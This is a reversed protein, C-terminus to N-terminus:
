FYEIRQGSHVEQLLIWLHLDLLFYLVFFILKIVVLAFAFRQSLGIVFDFHLNLGFNGALFLLLGAFVVFLCQWLSRERALVLSVFRSVDSELSAASVQALVFSDFIDSRDCRM